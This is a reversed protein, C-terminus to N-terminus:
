LIIWNAGNSQVTLNDYQILTIAGSAKGDITQASTTAVTIIGTGSNKINHVQGAITATELTVTFTGSTCNITYDNATVQYTTTKAVYGLVLGGALALMVAVNFNSITSATQTGTHNARDRDSAHYHITSNGGNTLSTAQAATVHSYSTSNLNGLAAHNTENIGSTPTTVFAWLFNLWRDVMAPDNNVLSPPRELSM